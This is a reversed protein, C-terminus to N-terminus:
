EDAFYNFFTLGKYYRTIVTITMFVEKIVSDTFAATSPEIIEYVASTEAVSGSAVIAFLAQIRCIGAVSPVIEGLAKGYDSVGNKYAFVESHGYHSWWTSHGISKCIHVHHVLLTHPWKIYM